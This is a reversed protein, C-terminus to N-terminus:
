RPSSSSSRKRTATRGFGKFTRRSACRASARSTPPICSSCIRWRICRGTAGNAARAAAVADLAIRAARDGIVHMHAQIGARDLALIAARFVDPQMMTPGRDEGGVYPELLAATRAELVGDVGLKAATIKLRAGRYQQRLREVREVEARFRARRGDDACQSAGGLTVRANLANERDLALYPALM